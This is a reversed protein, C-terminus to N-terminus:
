GCPCPDNREPQPLPRPRFGNGPLPVANWLARGLESVASRRAEEDPLPAFLTPLGEVAEERMWAMFRDPDESELIVGIADRLFDALHHDQGDEIEDDLEENRM